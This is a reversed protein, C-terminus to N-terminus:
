LISRSELAAHLLMINKEPKRLVKRIAREVSEVTIMNEFVGAGLAAGLMYINAGLPNGLEMARKAAPIIHVKLGQEQLAEVINELEPIVIDPLPPPTIKEEMFVPAGSKRYHSYRAAEIPDLAIMIDGEGEPILPASVDGMRVHVIVSGGRQSLGHTEAVIVNVNNEVAANALVNALSVIGQGGVGALVINLRRVMEVVRCALSTECEEDAEVM